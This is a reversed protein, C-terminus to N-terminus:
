PFALNFFAVIQSDSLDWRHLAANALHNHRGARFTIPLAVQHQRLLWSQLHLLSGTVASTAMSGKRIL